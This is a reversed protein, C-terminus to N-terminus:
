KKEEIKIDVEGSKKDREVEIGGAPTKMDFVKEKRKCGTSALLCTSALLLTISRIPSKM